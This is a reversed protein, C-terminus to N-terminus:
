RQEGAANSCGVPLRQCGSYAVAFFIRRLYFICKESVILPHSKVLYKRVLTVGQDNATDIPIGDVLLKQVDQLM